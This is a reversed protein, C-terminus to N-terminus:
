KAESASEGIVSMAPGPTVIGSRSEKSETQSKVGAKSYYARRWMEKAGQPLTIRWSESIELFNSRHSHPKCLLTELNRRIKETL